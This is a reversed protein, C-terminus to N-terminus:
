LPARTNVFGWVIADLVVAVVPLVAVHLRPQAGARHRDLLEAAGVHDLDRDRVAGQLVVQEHPVAVVVDVDEGVLGVVGDRHLPVDHADRGADEAAVGIGIGVPDGGTGTGDLGRVHVLVVAGPVGVALVVRAQLVTADHVTLSSSSFVM